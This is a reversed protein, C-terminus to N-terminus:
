QEIIKILKAKEMSQLFDDFSDTSIQAGYMWGARKKVEEMYQQLSENPTFQYLNMRKVIDEPTNGTFVTGDTLIKIKIM